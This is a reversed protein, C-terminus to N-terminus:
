LNYIFDPCDNVKNNNKDFSVGCNLGDIEIMESDTLHFDFINLNEKMHANSTSSVIPIVSNQYHWRYIIQAATKKYKRTLQRFIDSNIVRSDMHATPTHAMLVIGQEKCFNVLDKKTNLPNLEVQCIMPKIKVERMLKKLEDVDFNCVGIAKTYGSIYEKEIEKYASIWDGSPFHLLYADVYDTKLFKLSMMLNDHITTVSSYRRLDDDSVKTVLFFSNRNNKAIAKGIAQESHGYLRGTDFLRYGNEIARNLTNNITMDNKLRRSIKLHKISRMVDKLTDKFYMKKNRYYRKIVGTGFAICPIKEQNTLIYTRQDEENTANNLCYNNNTLHMVVEQLKKNFIRKGKENLLIPTSYYEPKQLEADEWFNIIEIGEKRLLKIYKWLCQEIIEEPMLNKLYSCFPPIVIIPILERSNCFQIDNQILGWSREIKTKQEDRIICESDWGFELMWNNFMQASYAELSIEKRNGRKNDWNLIKKIYNKIELKLYKNDLIGPCKALLIQKIHTYNQIRSSDLYWYYKYNHDELDYKDVVLAFESLSIFVIGGTRVRDGYQLLLQNDYYIDQPASAFNFGNANWLKYDFNNADCSSGFNIVDLNQSMFLYREKERKWSRYDETNKGLM